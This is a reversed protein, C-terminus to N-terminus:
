RHFPASHSRCRFLILVVIIDQVISVSCNWNSFRSQLQPFMGNVPKSRDSMLQFREDTSKECVWLRTKRDASVRFMRRLQMEIYGCEERTDLTKKSSKVLKSYADLKCVSFGGQITTNHRVRDLHHSDVVGYWEVWQCWIKEDVLTNSSGSIQIIPQNAYNGCNVVYSDHMTVNGPGDATSPIEQTKYGVYTQWKSVWETAVFYQYTSLSREKELGAIVRRQEEASPTVDSMSRSSDTITKRKYFEPVTFIVSVISVCQKENITMPHDTFLFSYGRM